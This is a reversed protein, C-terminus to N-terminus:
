AATRQEAAPSGPGMIRRLTAIQEPTLPPAMAVAREVHDEFMLSTYERKAELLEPDDAPRHRSLIAMRAQVKRIQEDKNPM